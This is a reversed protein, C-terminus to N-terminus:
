SIKVGGVVVVVVVMIWEGLVVGCWEVGSMEVESWEDGCREEVM